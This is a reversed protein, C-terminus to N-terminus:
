TELLDEQVQSLKLRPLHAQRREQTKGHHRRRLTSETLNYARAAARVSSFQGQQLDSLAQQIHEEQISAM